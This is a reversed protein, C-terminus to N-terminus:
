SHTLALYCLYTGLTFSVRAYCVRKEAYNKYKNCNFRQSTYSSNYSSQRTKKDFSSVQYEAGNVLIHYNNGCKFSNLARDVVGRFWNLVKDTNLYNKSDVFTSLKRSILYLFTINRLCLM